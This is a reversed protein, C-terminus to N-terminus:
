ASLLEGTCCRTGSSRLSCSWGPLCNGGACRRSSTTQTGAPPWPNVPAAPWTSGAAHRHSSASHSYAPLAQHQGGSSNHLQILCTNLRLTASKSALVGHHPWAQLGHKQTPSAQLVPCPVQLSPAQLAAHQQNCSHQLSCMAPAPLM